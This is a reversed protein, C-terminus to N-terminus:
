VHFEFGEKMFKSIQQRWLGGTNSKFNDSDEPLRGVEDSEHACLLINIYESTGPEHFVM